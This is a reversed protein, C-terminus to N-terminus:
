LMHCQFIFSQTTELMTAVELWDERVDTTTNGDNLGSDGRWPIGNNNPLKGSKQANFFLLAKNLALTYSDEPSKHEPLTDNAITIPLAKHSCDPCKAELKMIHRGRRIKNRM